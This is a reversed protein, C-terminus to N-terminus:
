TIESAPKRVGLYGLARPMRNSSDALPTFGHRKWGEAM